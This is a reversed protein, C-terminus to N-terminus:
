IPDRSVLHLKTSATRPAGPSQLPLSLASFPLMEEQNFGTNNEFFTNKNGPNTACKYNKNPIQTESKIM